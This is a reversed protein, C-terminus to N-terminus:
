LDAFWMAFLLIFLVIGLFNIVPRIFQVVADIQQNMLWGLYTVFGAPAQPGATSYLTMLYVSGLLVVGGAFVGRSFTGDPRADAKWSAAASPVRIKTVFSERDVCSPCKGVLNTLRHDGGAALPRLHEVTLPADPTRGCTVCRGNQRDRVAAQRADWDPPRRGDGNFSQAADYNDPDDFYPNRESM